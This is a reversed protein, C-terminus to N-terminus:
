GHSRLALAAAPFRALDGTCLLAGSALAGPAQRRACYSDTQANTGNKAGESVRALNATFDKRAKVMTVANRVVVTDYALVRKVHRALILERQNTTILSGCRVAQIMIQRMRAHFNIPYVRQLVCVDAGM